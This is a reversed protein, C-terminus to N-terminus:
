LVFDTEVGRFQEKIFGNIEVVEFLERQELRVRGAVLFHTDNVLVVEEEEKTILEEVTSGNVVFLLLKGAGAVIPDGEVESRSLRAQGGRAVLVWARLKLLVSDEWPRDLEMVVM